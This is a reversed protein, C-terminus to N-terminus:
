FQQKVNKEISSKEMYGEHSWIAKGNKFLMLKPLTNVKLSDILYSNEDVNIKLLILKGKNEDAIAELDPAMKKCPACWKAYFDVLVLKDGGISNQFAHSSMGPGETQTAIVPKESANWQLMGGKLVYIKRFGKKKMFEAAKASRAGSLCYVMVPKAKDLAGVQQDFEPANININFADEIHAKSFEEETRVDVIQEDPLENIETEFEDPSLVDKKEQGSGQLPTLFISIITALILCYKLQM